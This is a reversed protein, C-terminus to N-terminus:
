LKHVQIQRANMIPRAMYDHSPMEPPTRTRGPDLVHHPNHNCGDDLYVVTYIYVIVINKLVCYFMHKGKPWLVGQSVSVVFLHQQKKKKLGEDESFYVTDWLQSFLTGQLMTGCSAIMQNAILFFHEATIPGFLCYYDSKLYLFRSPLCWPTLLCVVWILPACQQKEMTVM